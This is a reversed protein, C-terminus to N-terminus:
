SPILPCFFKQLKRQWCVEFAFKWGHLIQTIVGNSRPNKVKNCLGIGLLLMHITADHEVKIKADPVDFVVPNLCVGKEVEVQLVGAVYYIIGVEGDHDRLRVQSSEEIVNVDEPGRVRWCRFSTSPTAAAHPLPPTPQPAPATVFMCGRGVWVNRHGPEQMIM